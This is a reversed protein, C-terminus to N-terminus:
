DQPGDTMWLRRWGDHGLRRLTAINREYIDAADPFAAVARDISAERLLHLMPYPSRNTYNEIDDCASGAFEYGPHFSAIQVVGELGLNAVAADADKLFRHYEIFDTMAQPHILLTTELVEPDVRTLLDLEHRLEALLEGANSAATVAYRIQQKVHVAKAFPCLNLGIVARELWFRTAAVVKAAVAPDACPTLVRTVPSSPLGRIM